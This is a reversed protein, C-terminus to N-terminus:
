SGLDQRQSNEGRGDRAAALEGVFRRIMGPSRLVEVQADPANEAIMKMVRPLYHRRYAWVWCWYDARERGRRLTRWAAWPFSLDLVIITDAARLRIGLAEDYPGLDGDIIWTDRQVLEQQVAAWRAADMATLGDRWFLTDLEIVPLGTVEGFQRALASKGAGGRGLVLVRKM